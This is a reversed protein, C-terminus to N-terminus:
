ADAAVRAADCCEPDRPLHKEDCGSPLPLEVPTPALGTPVPLAGSLLSTRGLGKDALVFTEDEPEALREFVDAVGAKDDDLLLVASGSGRAALVFTVEADVDLLVTGLGSGNAALVLTAEVEVDLLVVGLGFGKAALVFTAESGLPAAVSGVSWM